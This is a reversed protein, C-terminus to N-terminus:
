GDPLEKLLREYDDVMEKCRKVEGDSCFLLSPDCALLMKSLRGMFTSQDFRQTKPDFKPVMSATANEAVAASASVTAIAMTMAVITAGLPFSDSSAAIDTAAVEATSSTSAEITAKSATSAEASPAVANPQAAADAATTTSKCRFRLSRISGDRANTTIRLISSVYRSSTNAALRVSM